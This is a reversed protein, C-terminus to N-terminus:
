EEHAAVIALGIMEALQPVVANGLGKLRDVRGPVGHAVRGVGPEAPWTRWEPAFIRCSQREEDPIAAAHFKKSGTLGNAHPSVGPGRGDGSRRGWQKEEEQARFRARLSLSESDAVSTGGRLPLTPGQRGTAGTGGQLRGLGHADALPGAGGHAGSAGPRGSAQAWGADPRLAVHGSPESPGWETHQTNALIWVRDRRHPADVACAPVVLPGCTYGIGELDSCVADLGLSVHGAVNEFLCWAPRHYAVIRFVFPWLHRDDRAGKRQGAVSFPQCPYGGAVLTARPLEAPDLTTIDRWRRVDPWHRRLIKNCYDDIEVQGVCTMGARTLGLTLGGIGACLDLFTM